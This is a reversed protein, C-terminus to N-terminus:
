GAGGPAGAGAGEPLLVARAVGEFTHRLIEEGIEIEQKEQLHMLVLIPGTFLAYFVQLRQDRLVGQRVAEAFHEVGVAQEELARARTEETLIGSSECQQIFNSADRHRLHWRAYESWSRWLQERPSLAADAPEPFARDREEVLELYLANILAEKSEFYTYATGVAVGAERAIASMPTNHLGTRAVRRLTAALIAERKTAPTRRPAALTDSM